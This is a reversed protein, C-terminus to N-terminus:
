VGSGTQVGVCGSCQKHTPMAGSPFEGVPAGSFQVGADKQEPTVQTAKCMRSVGEGDEEGDRLDRPGCGTTEGGPTPVAQSTASRRSQDGPIAGLWQAPGQPDRSAENSSSTSSPAIQNTGATKFNEDLKKAETGSSRPVPKESSSNTADNAAETQSLATSCTRFLEDERELEEEELGFWMKTLEVLSKGPNNFCFEDWMRQGKEESTGAPPLASEAARQCLVENGEAEKGDTGEENSRDMNESSPHTRQQSVGLRGQECSDALMQGIERLSLPPSKNFDEEKDGAERVFKERLDNVFDYDDSRGNLSAICRAKGSRNLLRSVLTM